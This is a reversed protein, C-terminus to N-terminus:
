NSRVGGPLAQALEEAMRAPIPLGISGGGDLQFVLHLVGTPAMEVTWNKAELPIPVVGGSPHRPSCQAIVTILQSLAGLPLVLDIADTDSEFGLTAQGSKIDGVGGALATIKYQM